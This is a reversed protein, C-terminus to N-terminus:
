IVGGVLHILAKRSSKLELLGHVAPGQLRTWYVRQFKPLYQGISVPCCELTSEDQQNRHGCPRHRLDAAARKSPNRTRIGSPAHIDTQQWHQTNDPLPDRRLASWEDLSTRSLSRSRSLSLSPTHTHTHTHTDKLAILHLLLERFRSHYTSSTLSLFFSLSFSLFFSLSVEIKGSM